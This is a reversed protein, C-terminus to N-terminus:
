GFLNLLPQITEVHIYKNKYESKVNHCGNSVLSIFTFEGKDDVKKVYEKESVTTTGDDYFLAGKKKKKKITYGNSLVKDITDTIIKQHDKGFDSFVLQYQHLTHEDVLTGVTERFSKDPAVVVVDFMKKNPHPVSIIEYFEDVDDDYLSLDYISLDERKYTKTSIKNLIGLFKKLDIFVGRTNLYPLVKILKSMLTDDLIKVRHIPLDSKYNKTILGTKNISTFIFINNGLTFLHPAKRKFISSFHLKIDKM